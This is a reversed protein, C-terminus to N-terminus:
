YQGNFFGKIAQYIIYPWIAICTLMELFTFPKSTKLERISIDTIIAVIIGIGIYPILYDLIM